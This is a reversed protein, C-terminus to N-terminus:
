LVEDKPKLIENIGKELKSLNEFYDRNWIKIGFMDARLLHFRNISKELTVIYANATVGFNRKLAALKYIVDKVNLNKLSTKAEFVYLQNEYVFMLDFENVLREKGIKINLALQDIRKIRKEFLYYLLEEFWGGSLYEIEKRSLFEGHNPWGAEKLIKSLGGILRCSTKKRNRLDKLQQALASTFAGLMYTKLLGFAIKRPFAPKKTEFVKIGCSALYDHFNIRYTLEKEPHRTFPFLQKYINKGVPMYFIEVKGRAKFFEYVAISMIKTGSTINIYAIYNEEDDLEAMFKDLAQQIKDISDEEVILKRVKEKEIGAGAIIHNTKNLEEMKKTTVFLYLDAPGKEKLFLVNPLTQDGVISVSLKKM